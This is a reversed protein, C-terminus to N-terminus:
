VSILKAYLTKVITNRELKIIDSYLRNIIDLLIYSIESRILLSLSLNRMFYALIMSRIEVPLRSFIRLGRGIVINLSTRSTSNLFDITM